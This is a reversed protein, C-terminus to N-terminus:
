PWWPHYFKAGKTNQPVADGARESVERFLDM